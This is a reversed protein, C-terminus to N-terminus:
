VQFNISNIIPEGLSRGTSDCLHTITYNNELDIDKILGISYEM